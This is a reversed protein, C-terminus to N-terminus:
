RALERLYEARAERNARDIRAVEEAPVVFEPYDRWAFVVFTVYAGVLGLIVLWWIHWILAFGTATAFFATIFGTPTNRPMEIPAYEPEPTVLRMELLAKQKIDWYPEQDKVNPLIAFNFAPPPSATAWELSRGNWPDGTSDRRKGRTRISVVLQAIQAVIGALIILVGVGALLMWSHWQPDDYHQLRRTMGELGAVYGPAWAVWFGVFWLWFAWKGLREDLV